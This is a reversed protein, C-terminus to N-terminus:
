DWETPLGPDRHHALVTELESPLVRGLSLPPLEHLGFWGVELTELAQPAVPEGVQRCLFFLKHVAVPLPPVHGRADRDWVAVLKVAEVPYGTEELVEREAAQGPRDGPDAWGGPLSWRGDSRERMLLFREQEDLVAARVDVKPTAYGSDRGLQVLLEDRDSGSQASLIEAALERMLSYRSTDYDKAPDGATFALGSQALGALLVAARRIREAAPLEEAALQQAPEPRVDEPPTM